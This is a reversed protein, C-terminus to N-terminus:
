GMSSEAKPIAEHEGTCDSAEYAAAPRRGDQNVEGAGVREDVAPDRRRGDRPDADVDIPDADSVDLVGEDIRIAHLVGAAAQIPEANRNMDPGTGRKTARWIPM